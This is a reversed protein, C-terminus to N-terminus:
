DWMAMLADITSSPKAESPSEVGVNVGGLDAAVKVNRVSKANAISRKFAEFARDDFLM